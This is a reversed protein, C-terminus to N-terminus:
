APSATKATLERGALRESVRALETHDADAGAIAQAAATLERCLASFPTPTGTERAVDLAIGIDKALLDLRFGSDFRRSLVFQKLKRQTSNNMGTSANLVDVMLEPDLGFATGALLAEIAIVFGGASVLNNLAKMAHASGLPGTYTVSSGMAELLPMARAVSPERGGVMIALDGTTARSVGGSVPADIMEIGGPALGEAIARTASPQGSSMEVVLTGPRLADRMADLVSGVVKSNPLMTVIIDASRALAVADSAVAGIDAAAKAAVDPRADTVVLAFGAQALQAAMPRGMNGMGVFGVRPAVTTGNAM